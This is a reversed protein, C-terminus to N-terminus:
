KEELFKNICECTHAYDEKVRDFNPLIDEGFEERDRLQETLVSVSDALKKLSMNQCVGKLTHAERFAEKVDKEELASCLLSYSKDNIVKPLFKEIMKDTMLRNLVDEYDGGMLDYCEKITMKSEGKLRKLIKKVYKGSYYNEIYSKLMSKM